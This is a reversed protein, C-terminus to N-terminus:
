IQLQNKVTALVLVETNKRQSSILLPAMDTLDMAVRNTIVAPNSAVEPAEVGIQLEEIARAVASGGEAVTEM